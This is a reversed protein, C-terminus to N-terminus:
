QENNQVEKEPNIFDLVLESFKKTEEEFPLHASNNFSVVQYNSGLKQFHSMGFATPIIGDHEGFIVLTPIQNEKEAKHLEGRLKLAMMRKLLVKFNTLYKVFYAIEDRIKPDNEGEFFEESHFYLYKKFKLKKEESVNLTKKVNLSKTSLWSSSNMPTIIVLKSILDKLQNAVMLAIGGGMSHGMLVVDEFGKLKIWEAVYEAYFIPDLQKKHNLKAYGHGPLQIAYYNYDGIFSEIFDDFYESTTAFGHIFVVVKNSNSNSKHFRYTYNQENVLEFNIM